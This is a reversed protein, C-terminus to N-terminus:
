VSLKKTLFDTEPIKEGYFPWFNFKNLWYWRSLNESQLVKWKKEIKEPKPFKVVIKTLCFRLVATVANANM